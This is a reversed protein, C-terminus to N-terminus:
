KRTKIVYTDTWKDHWGRDGLFSFPEFPVTRALTRLLIQNFTPKEGDANIVKTGTILKGLTRGTFYELPIYYFSIIVIGLIWDGLPSGKDEALSQENFVGLVYLVVGLVFALLYYGFIDIFLNFFRQMKSAQVFNLANQEQTLDRVASKPPAYISNQNQMYNYGKSNNHTMKIAYSEFSTIFNESFPSM